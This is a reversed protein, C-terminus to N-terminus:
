PAGGFEVSVIDDVAERHGQLWCGAGGGPAVLADLSEACLPLAAVVADDCQARLASRALRGARAIRKQIRADTACHLPAPPSGSALADLRCRQLLGHLKTTYARGASAIAQQCALGDSDLACQDCGDGSAENGDDCQEDPDVTGDGCSSWGASLLLQEESGEAGPRTSWAVLWQGAGDTSPRAGRDDSTDSRTSQLLPAATSWHLGGDGSQAIWPDFEQGSMGDGSDNSDFTLVWRGAGDTALAPSFETTESETIRTPASWSAGSDTSRAVFLDDGWTDDDMPAVTSGWAVMWTGARDNALSWGRERREATLAVPVPVSWTVGLDTSRSFYTEADDSYPAAHPGAVALLVGWVGAGDTALGIVPGSPADPAEFSDIREPTSWTAGGDSSRVVMPDAASPVDFRNWVVLWHGSGDAAIRTTMDDLDDSDADSHLPAQTSWTAGGDTSRSFFLGYDGAAPSGPTKEILYAHWVAIWVGHGDTALTPSFERRPEADAPEFAVPTSWTAGRDLSRSWVVDSDRRIGVGPEFRHWVAVWTHGDSVLTPSRELRGRGAASPDIPLPEGFIPAESRAAGPALALLLALLVTSVRRRNPAM